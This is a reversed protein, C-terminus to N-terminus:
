ELLEDEDHREYRLDRHFMFMRITSISCLFWCLCSAVGYYSGIDFSCGLSHCVASDFVIFTLSELFYVLLCTCAVARINIGEFCPSLIIWAFVAVGLITALGGAVRSVDWMRDNIAVNELRYIDCLEPDTLHDTFPNPLIVSQSIGEVASAQSLTDEKSLDQRCLEIRYLGLAYSPLCGDKPALSHTVSTFNTARKAMYSLLLGFSSTLLSVATNCFGYSWMSFECRRTEEEIDFSDEDDDKSAKESKEDQITQMEIDEQPAVPSASMETKHAPTSKEMKLQVMM